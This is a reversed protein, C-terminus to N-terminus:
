PSIARGLGSVESGMRRLIASESAHRGGPHADNAALGPRRCMGGIGVVQPLGTRPSAPERPPKRHVRGHATRGQPGVRHAAVSDVRPRPPHGAHAVTRDRIRRELPDSSSCRGPPAQPLDGRYPGHDSRRCDCRGLPYPVSYLARGAQIHYDINVRAKRWEAHEYRQAPLPKLAPRNLDPEYRSAERVAAKENDPIVLEPVGGWSEFMRVHSM